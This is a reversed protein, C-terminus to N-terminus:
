EKMVSLLIDVTPRIEIETTDYGKRGRRYYFLFFLFFSISVNKENVNIEILYRSVNAETRLEEAKM